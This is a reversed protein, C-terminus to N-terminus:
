VSTVIEAYKLSKNLNIKIYKLYDEPYSSIVDLRVVIRYEQDNQYSADKQSCSLLLKEQNNPEGKALLDKDYRVKLCEISLTNPMTQEKKLYCAIDKVLLDPRLIRVIYQGFSHKLHQLNVEPGSCCLIYYPNLNSSYLDIPGSEMRESLLEGTKKDVTLVPRNGLYKIRGKGEDKDKRSLDEINRYYEQINLLFSGQEVFSKAYKEKEYAKYLLKPFPGHTTIRRM